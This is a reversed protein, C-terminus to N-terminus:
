GRAHPVRGRMEGPSAEGGGRHWGRSVAEHYPMDKRDSLRPLRETGVVRDVEQQLKCQIDPNLALTAVMGHILSSTTTIGISLFMNGCM